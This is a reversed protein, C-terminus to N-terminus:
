GCASPDDLKCVGGVCNSDPLCPPGNWFDCAAGDAVPAVCQGKVCLGGARRYTDVGNVKGCPMGPGAFGVSICTKSDADCNFGQAHNCTFSVRPDCAAGATSVPIACVGNLCPFPYACALLKADCAEGPRRPVVCQNQICLLGLGCLGFACPSGVGPADACQGCNASRSCFNSACQAESRCPAGNARTGPPFCPALFRGAYYDACSKLSAFAATCASLDAATTANGPARLGALCLPVTGAVCAAADEYQLRMGFSSCTFHSACTVAAWERCARENATDDPAGVVLDGAAADRSGPPLADTNCATITLVLAMPFVPFGSSRM